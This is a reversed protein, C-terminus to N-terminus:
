EGEGDNSGDGQAKLRKRLTARHVNLARALHTPKNDFRPLLLQLMRGELEGLLAEYDKGQPLRVDLWDRLAADLHLLGDGTATGGARAQLEPPLHTPLIVSGTCVAAARELVNRLERVNGPWDYQQLLHVTPEALSLPRQQSLNALLYSCLAPIDSRRACLPPLSVELVRLRYLLDERFRKEAVAQPLDRNTAAIVRLDIRVDERGGIRTFTKEEVVRLLKVQLAPSLEGIEDLFLTGGAARDLHGVRTQQAGTFSGKEHGFLEAELLSEPLSACSLTVFPGQQRASHLHIVQATLSKGIGTPGTILVPADSACAHAIATFAPQMAASSGILLPAAAPAPPPVTPAASAAADHLLARVTRELEGLDLPKVLYAAAGGKRAQVANQLNGHATVMLVPITADHARIRDLAALGSQDPLGIVLVVLDPRQQQLRQLGLTASAATSATHGLRQMLIALASALAAEDEIILVHSM